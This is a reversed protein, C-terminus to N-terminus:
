GGNLLRDVRQRLEATRESDAPLSALARDFLERARDKKGQRLADEAVFWLAQPHDPAIDLTRRSLEVAKARRGQERLARAYQTLLEVNRPYHEVARALAERAKAPEELVRYSRVLRKWGDLNKPDDDLKAALSTVMNRIMERRQEPAMDQAARMQERTPGDPREGGAAGADATGGRDATTGGTEPAVEAFTTGPEIGLAREAQAMRQKAAPLWPADPGADAVMARWRDLATRAEGQQLARLALYYRARPLEARGDLATRFARAAKDTVTDDNARVLAQGYRARAGPGGGVELARAFAEAAERFRDRHIRVFGLQQWAEASTPDTRIRELVREEMRALRDGGAEAAGDGGGRQQAVATSEPLDRAVLPRDPMGPRGLHVYGAIATAAVAVAVAIAAARARRTGGGAHALDGTRRRDADLLRRGIETRAAEADQPRLTGAREAHDVEALQDRYVAVDYAAADRARARGRWMPWVLVAAVLATLVVVNMWFMM